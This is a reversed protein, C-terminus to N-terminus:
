TLHGPGVVSKSARAVNGTEMSHQPGLTCHEARATNPRTTSRACGRKSLKHGLSETM